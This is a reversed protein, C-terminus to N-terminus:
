KNYSFVQQGSQTVENTMEVSADNAIGLIGMLQNFCKAYESKRAKLETSINLQQQDIDNINEKISSIGTRKEDLTNNIETRKFKLEELQKNVDDINNEKFIKKRENIKSYYASIFLSPIGILSSIGFLLLAPLGYLCFLVTAAVVCTVSFIKAIKFYFQKNKFAFEEFTLIKNKLCEVDEIRSNINNNSKVNSLVENLLKKSQNELETKKDELINYQKKLSSIEVNICKLQLGQIKVNELTKDM